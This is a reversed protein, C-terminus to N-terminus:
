LVTGTIDRDLGTLVRLLTSKGCGSRGLLAVFEGPRVDLRLDDLVARGDFTRTLGEVRVAPATDAAPTVPRHVDTAM